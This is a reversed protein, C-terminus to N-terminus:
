ALIVRGPATSLGELQKALAAPDTVPEQCAFDRCVYATPREDRMTIASSWPLRTALAALAGPEITVQVASPLYARAVVAELARTGESERPGVIVVQASPLHWLAVNALMLPMVRAVRGIETGYRELTRKARDVLSPDSVLHGLM